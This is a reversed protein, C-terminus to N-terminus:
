QRFIKNKGDATTQVVSIRKEVKEVSSNITSQITSTLNTRKEGIEIEDYSDTLVNWVTRIVKAKTNM